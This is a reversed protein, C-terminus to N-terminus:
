DLLATIRMTRYLTLLARISTEATIFVKQKNEEISAEAFSVPAATDERSQTHKLIWFDLAESFVENNNVPRNFRSYLHNRVSQMKGLFEAKRGDDGPIEIRFSAARNRVGAKRDMSIIM